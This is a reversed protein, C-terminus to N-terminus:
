SLGRTEEKRLDPQEPNRGINLVCELVGFGLLLANNFQLVSSYLYRLGEQCFGKIRSLLFLPWPSFINGFDVLLPLFACSPPRSIGGPLVRHM